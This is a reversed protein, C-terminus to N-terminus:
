NQVIWRDILEEPVDCHRFSGSSETGYERVGEVPKMDRALYTWDMSGKRIERLYTESNNEQEHRPRRTIRKRWCQEGM